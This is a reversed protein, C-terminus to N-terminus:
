SGHSRQFVVVNSKLRRRSLYTRLGTAFAVVEDDGVLHLDHHRVAEVVDREHRSDDVIQELALDLPGAALDRAEEDVARRADPPRNSGAL